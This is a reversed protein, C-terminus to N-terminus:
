YSLMRRGPTRVPVPSASFSSASFPSDLFRSREDDGLRCRGTPSDEM